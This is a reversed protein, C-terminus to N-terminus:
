YGFKISDDEYNTYEALTQFISFNIRAVSAKGQRNSKEEEQQPLHFYLLIRELYNHRQKLQFKLM